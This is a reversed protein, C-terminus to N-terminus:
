GSHDSYSCVRRQRLFNHNKYAVNQLRNHFDIKYESIITLKADSV